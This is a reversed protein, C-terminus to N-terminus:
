KGELNQLFHIVKGATGPSPTLEAYALELTEVALKSETANFPDAEWSVPWADYIQWSLSPQNQSDLLSVTVNYKHFTGNSISDFVWKRLKSSHLIGRKLVLNPYEPGTPLKQQGGVPGYRNSTNFGAKLGRVESWSSEEVSAGLLSVAHFSVKFKFALPPYSRGDAM